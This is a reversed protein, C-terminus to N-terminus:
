RGRKLRLFNKFQESLDFKKDKKAMENDMGFEEIDKEYKEQSEMLGNQIKEFTESLPKISYPDYLRIFEELRQRNEVESRRNNILTFNVDSINDYSSYM